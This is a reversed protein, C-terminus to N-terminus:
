VEWAHTTMASYKRRWPPRDLRLSNFAASDSLAPTANTPGVRPCITAPEPQMAREPLVAVITFDLGVSVSGERLKLMLGCCLSSNTCGEDLAVVILRM